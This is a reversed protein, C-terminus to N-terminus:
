WAGKPITIGERKLQAIFNRSLGEKAPVQPLIGVIRGDLKIKYHRSGREVEAHPNAKAIARALRYGTGHDRSM